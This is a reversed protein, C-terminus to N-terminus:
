SFGTPYCYNVHIRQDPCSRFDNRAGAIPKTISKIQEYDNKYFHIFIEWIKEESLGTKDGFYHLFKEKNTMTGVDSLMIETGKLIWEPVSKACAYHSFQKQVLSLYEQIFIDIDFQILTGDLDLLLYKIKSAMVM